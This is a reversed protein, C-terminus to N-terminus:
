STEEKIKRISNRLDDIRSYYEDASILGKSMSIYNEQIQKKLLAIDNESKKQKSSLKMSAHIKEKRVAISGFFRKISRSLNYNHKKAIKKSTEESPNIKEKNITEAKADSSDPATDGDPTKIKKSGIKLRSFKPLKIKRHRFLALIIIVILLAVVFALGLVSTASVSTASKGTIKEMSEQIANFRQQAEEPTIEGSQLSDIVASVSVIADTVLFVEEQSLDYQRNLIASLSAKTEALDSLVKQLSYKGFNSQNLLTVNLSIIKGSINYLTNNQGETLKPTITFVTDAFATMIFSSVNQTVNASVRYTGFPQAESLYFTANYRGPQILTANLNQFVSLNPYFVTINVSADSIPLGNKDTVLLSVIATDGRDYINGTYASTYIFATGSIGVFTVAQSAASSVNTNNSIGILDLLRSVGIKSGTTMNITITTNCTINTDVNGCNFSNTGSILQLDTQNTLLIDPADGNNNTRATWNVGGCFYNECRVSANVIYPQGVILDTVLSSPSIIKATLNGNRVNVVPTRKSTSDNAINGTSNSRCRIGINELTNKGSVTWTNTCSGDQSVDGCLFSSSDGAPITIFDTPSTDRTPINNWTGSLNQEAILYTDPSLGNRVILECRLSFASNVSGGYSVNTSNSLPLTINTDHTTNLITYYFIGSLNTQAHDDVVELQISHSGGDLALTQILNTSNSTVPTTNTNNQISDVFLRTEIIKYSNKVLYSINFTGNNVFSNNAPLTITVNLFSAGGGAPAEVVTLYFQESMNMNRKTDNVLFFWSYSGAPINLTLNTIATESSGSISFWNGFNDTQNIWAGTPTMNHSITFLSLGSLTDAADCFFTVDNNQIVPETDNRGCNTVAPAASDIRILQTPYEFCNPRDNQDCPRFQIELGEGSINQTITANFSFLSYQGTTKSGSIFTMNSFDTTYNILSTNITVNSMGTGGAPDSVNITLTINEGYKGWTGEGYTVTTFNVIPITNDISYNFHNGHAANFFDDVGFGNWQYNSTNDFTATNWIVEWTNASLLTANKYFTKSGTNNTRYYMEVYQCHNNDLCKVKLSVNGNVKTNNKPSLFTVTPPSLDTDNVVVLAREPSCTEADVLNESCIKWNFSGDYQATKQVSIQFPNTGSITVSPDPKMQFEGIRVIMDLNTTSSVWNGETGNATNVRSSGGSRGFIVLSDTDSTVSHIVIFYQQGNTVVNKNTQNMILTYNGGSPITGNIRAAEIIKSPNGGVSSWVQVDIEKPLAGFNNGINLTINTIYGTTNANFYDAVWTTGGFTQNINNDGTYEKRHSLHTPTLNHWFTYNSLGDDDDLVTGNFTFVSGSLASIPAHSLNFVTPPTFNVQYTQLNTKNFRGLRDTTMASYAYTGNNSHSLSLNVYGINAGIASLNIEEPTLARSFIKFEDITGNFKNNPFDLDQGNSEYGGILINSQKNQPPNTYIDKDFLTANKFLMTHTGNWIATIHHWTNAPLQASPIASRQAGNIYLWLIGTGDFYLLVGAGNIPTNNAQQYIGDFSPTKGYYMWFQITFADWNEIDLSPTYNIRLYGNNISSQTFNCAVSSIGKINENCLALSNTVHNGWSSNDWLRSQAIAGKSSNDMSLYLRLSNNFDIFTSINESEGASASVNIPLNYNNKVSTGNPPTPSVFQIHPIVYPIYSIYIIPRNTADAAEVSLFNFDTTTSATTSQNLLFAFIGPNTSANYSNNVLKTISWNYRSGAAPNVKLVASDFTLNCSANITTGCTQNNWDINDANWGLNDRFIEHLTINFTGLPGTAAEMEYDASLIQKANNLVDTVNAKVQIKKNGTLDAKRILLNTASSFNNGAINEDVYTDIIGVNSTVVTQAFVIFSSFIAVLFVIFIIINKM